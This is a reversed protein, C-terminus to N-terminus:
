RPKNDYNYEDKEEKAMFNPMSNQIEYPNKGFSLEVSDVLDQAIASIGGVQINNRDYLDIGRIKQALGFSNLHHDIDTTELENDRAYAESEREFDYNRNDWSKEIDKASVALMGGETMEKPLYKQDEGIRDMTFQQEESMIYPITDTGDIQLDYQNYL